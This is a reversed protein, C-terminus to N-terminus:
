MSQPHKISIMKRIDPFIFWGFGILSLLLISKGILCYPGCFYDDGFGLLCSVCGLAAMILYDIFILVPLGIVLKLLLNTKM